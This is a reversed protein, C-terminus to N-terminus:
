QWIFPDNDLTVNQIAAQADTSACLPTCVSGILEM